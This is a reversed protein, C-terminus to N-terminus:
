VLAEVGAFEEEESLEGDVSHCFEACGDIFEWPLTTTFLVRANEIQETPDFDPFLSKEGEMEVLVTSFQEQCFRLWKKYEKPNVKNSACWSPPVAQIWRPLPNDETTERLRNARLVGNWWNDVQLAELLKQLQQHNDRSEKREKRLKSIANPVTSSGVESLLEEKEEAYRIFDDKKM